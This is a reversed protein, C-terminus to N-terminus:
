GGAQELIIITDNGDSDDVADGGDAAVDNVLVVVVIGNVMNMYVM